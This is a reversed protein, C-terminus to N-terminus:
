ESSDLQNLRDILMRLRGFQRRDFHMILRPLALLDPEGAEQALAGGQVIEGRTLLDDFEHNLAALSARDLPSSLRVVLRDGVYRSSHYRRYFQTIEAVAEDLDDTVRFLRMDDPSILGNALLHDEVYDRWTRWYTGGPADIF